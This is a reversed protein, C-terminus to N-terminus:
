ALSLRVFSVKVIRIGQLVENMISVRKDTSAMLDEQLKGIIKGLYTGLPGLALIMVIGALASPGLVYFLSSLAIVTSIPMSILVDHSYSVFSRVRETDVSMLTVVKGLSAQGDEDPASASMTRKLSKDYLLSVLVARM